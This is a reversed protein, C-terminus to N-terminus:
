DLLSSLASALREADHLVGDHTAVPREVCPVRLDGRPMAGPHCLVVDIEVGHRHLADVHAAVDYGTTEPEQPRLNCVYVKRAASVIDDMDKRSGLMVNQTLWCAEISCIRETNPVSVKAKLAWTWPGSDNPSTKRSPSIGINRNEPAKKGILM